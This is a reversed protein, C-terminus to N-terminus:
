MFHNTEEVTLWPLRHNAFDTQKKDLLALLKKVPADIRFDEVLNHGVNLLLLIKPIREAGGFFHISLGFLQIRLVQKGGDFPVRAVQGFGIAPREAMDHVAIKVFAQPHILLNGPPADV